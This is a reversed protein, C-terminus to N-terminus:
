NATRSARLRGLVVAAAAEPPGDTSVDWWHARAEPGPPEWRRAASEYVAWDAESADGRRDALRARAAAPDVRCVALAAPVALRAALDFFQRRHADSGFTADVIVRRGDFLLVEARRLCEAYTRETWEPSYVDAAARATPSLGALEKRVVDSRIVTFNAREAV